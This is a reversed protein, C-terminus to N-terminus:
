QCLGREPGIPPLVFRVRPLRVRRRLRRRVGAGGDAMPRWAVISVPVNPDVLLLDAAARVLYKPGSDFFDSFWHSTTEVM